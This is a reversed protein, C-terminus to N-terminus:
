IKSLRNKMVLALFLGFVLGGSLSIPIVVFWSYQFNNVIQMVVSFISGFSLGAVIAIKKYDIKQVKELNNFEEDTIGSEICERIYPLLAAAQFHFAIKYGTFWILLVLVLRLNENEILNGFYFYILGPILLTFVLSCLYNKWQKKAKWLRMGSVKLIQSRRAPDINKLEKISEYSHHV